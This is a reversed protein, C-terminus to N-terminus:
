LALKLVVPLHDSILPSYDVLGNRMFTHLPLVLVETDSGSIAEFVPATVMIHDLHSPWSPFSWGSGPGEAIAMDVFRYHDPADLFNQFVNRTPSDVLNDNFDGVVFVHKDSYNARIFEDLMLSADRRRTEEDWDNEEEITGNGCCKFHNNIVVIPVDKYRGELVFPRRPFERSYEVLIEYVSDVQLDGDIRYLFALNISYSASTARDGDWNELGERVQRFYTLDQIEQLAIIDVNMGEVAQIVATVTEGDMKAFHELNWTAIELTSDTGVIAGEFPNEVVPV